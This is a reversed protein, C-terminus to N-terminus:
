QSEGTVSAWDIFGLLQQVAAYADVLDTQARWAALRITLLENQAAILDAFTGQGTRYTQLTSAFAQEARPQLISRYLALNDQAQEWRYYAVALDASQELQWVEWDAQVSATLAASADRQAQYSNRWIPLSLGLMLRTDGSDMGGRMYEAGVMVRPLGARGALQEGTEAAKLQAAYARALPAQNLYEELVSLPPLEVTQEETRVEDIMGVPVGAATALRAYASRLLRQLQVSETNLQDRANQARLFDAQGTSGTEYLARAVAVSQEVLLLQEAVVQQNAQLYTLENYARWVAGQVEVQEQRVSERAADRQALAQDISLQRRGFVPIDQRLAIGQGRSDSLSQELSLEPDMWAGAQTVQAEAGQLRAKAAQVRPHHDRAYAMLEARTPRESLSYQTTELAQQAPAAQPMESGPGSACGGLSVSVLGLLVGLVLIRGFSARRSVTTAFM